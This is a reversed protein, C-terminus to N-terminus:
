IDSGLLTQEKSNIELSEEEVFSSNQMSAKFATFEVSNPSSERMRADQEAEERELRATTEAVSPIRSQATPNTKDNQM